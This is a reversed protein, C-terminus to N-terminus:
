KATNAPGRRRTEAVERMIRHSERIEDVTVPRDLDRMHRGFGTDPSIHSFLERKLDEDAQVEEWGMYNRRPGCLRRAVVAAALGLSIAAVLDSM